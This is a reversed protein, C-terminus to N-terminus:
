TALGEKEMLREVFEAKSIRRDKDADLSNM